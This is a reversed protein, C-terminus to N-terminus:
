ILPFLQCLCLEQHRDDLKTSEIPYKDAPKFMGVRTKGETKNNLIAIKVGQKEDSFKKSPWYLTNRCIDCGSRHNYSFTVSFLAFLLYLALKESKSVYMPYFSENEIQISYNNLFKNEFCEGNVIFLVIIHPLQFFALFDIIIM